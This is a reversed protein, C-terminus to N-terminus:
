APGPQSCRRAGRRSAAEVRRGGRCPFSESRRAPLSDLGAGAAESGAAGEAEGGRTSGRERFRGARDRGQEAGAGRGAAGGVAGGREGRISGVNPDAGESGGRSGVHPPCRGHPERWSPGARRLDQSGVEGSIGGTDLRWVPVRTQQQGQRVEACAGAELDQQPYLCAGREAAEGCSDMTRPM